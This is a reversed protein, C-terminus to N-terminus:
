GPIELGRSEVALRWSAVDGLMIEGAAKARRRLIELNEPDDEELAKIQEKLSEDARESRRAYGEFDGIVRIGYSATALAPFFASLAVGVHHEDWDHARLVHELLYKLCMGHFFLHDLAVLVTALFLVRGAYEVRRELRKMRDANRVHYDCQHELIGTIAARVGDIGSRDFTYPRLPQERVLARVYWGTWAPESGSFSQPKLGLLWLMAAVRLREAVERAEFWRNHWGMYRGGFTNAAVFLILLIELAPPWSDRNFLSVVAAAVALSAVLFNLVFASRFFQAFYLGLADAWGYAPLFNSVPLGSRIAPRLLGLLNDSLKPTREPVVDSLRPLRVALLFQLVPYALGANVTRFRESFHRRLGTRETPKKPPQVLKDMLDPLAQDFAKSPLAEVKDVRVPFKDLGSWKVMTPKSGGADVQIIPIDLVTAAAVM